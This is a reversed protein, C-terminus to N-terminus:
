HVSIAENLHGYRISAGILVRDYQAFDVNSITFTLDQLEHWEFENM